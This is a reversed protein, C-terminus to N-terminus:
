CCLEKIVQERAKRSRLGPGLDRGTFPAIRQSSCFGIKNEIYLNTCVQLATVARKHM